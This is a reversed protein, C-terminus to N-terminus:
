IQAALLMDGATSLIRIDNMIDEKQESVPRNIDSVFMGRKQNVAVYMVPGLFSIAIQAGAQKSFEEVKEMLQPTLIYYANHVDSSYVDFIKNFAANEMEIKYETLRGKINSLFEKQFIQVIGNSKKREDFFDFCLVQGNFISEMRMSRGCKVLRRTHIDSIMFRTDRYRGTVMNESLYYRKMGCDVVTSNYIDQYSFGKKPNYTIGEFLGTERIGELVYRERFRLSFREYARGGILNYLLFFIPTSFSFPIIFALVIRVPISGEPEVCFVAIIFFALFFLGTIVFIVHLQNKAKKRLIELEEDTGIPKKFM